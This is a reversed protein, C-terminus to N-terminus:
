LDQPFLCTEKKIFRCVQAVTFFHRVVDIHLGRWRFRPADEIRIQPLAWPGPQLTNSFIEAPFLQRFTQIGRALGSPSAAKLFAGDAGVEIEYAENEFGADDQSTEGEGHLHLYGPRAEPAAEVPLPFGTAPRLYEALLEAIDAVDSGSYSVRTERLLLYQGSKTSSRLPQPIISCGVSSVM